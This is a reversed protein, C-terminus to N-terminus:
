RHSKLFESVPLHLIKIFHQLRVVANKLHFAFPIFQVCHIEVAERFPCVGDESVARPMVTGGAAVKDPRNSVGNEDIVIQGDEGSIRIGRSANKIGLFDAIDTSTPNTLGAVGEMEAIAASVIVNIVDESISIKGQKTDNTIYNEPM